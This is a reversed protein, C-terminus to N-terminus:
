MRVHETDRLELQAASTRKSYAHFLLRLVGFSEGLKAEHNLTNIQIRLIGLGAAVGAAGFKYLPICKAAVVGVHLSSKMHLPRIWM